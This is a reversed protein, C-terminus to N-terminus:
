RRNTALHGLKRRPLVVWNRRGAGRCGGSGFRFTWGITRSPMAPGLRGVSIVVRDDPWAVDLGAALLRGRARRRPLALEDALRRGRLARELGALPGRGADHDAPAIRQAGRDAVAAHARDPPRGVRDQAAVDGDFFHDQRGAHRRGVAVRHVLPRQALGAGGGRQRVRGHDLDVVHDGLGAPRPDDHLEQLGAAQGLHDDLVARECRSRHGLDADRQEARELDGVRGAHQVAVDLRGVHQDATVAAAHQGVEPDGAHRGVGLQGRGAHHEARRVEDRGLPRDPGLEARRAVQEREAHREVRGDLAARREVPAVRELRHAGDDLLRRRGRDPGAGQGAHEVPQQLLVRAPAPVHLRGAGHQAVQHDARQGAVRGRM